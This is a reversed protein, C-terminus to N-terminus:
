KAVSHSIDEDWECLPCLFHQENGSVLSLHVSSSLPACGSAKEKGGNVVATCSRFGACQLCVSLGWGWWRSGLLLKYTGTTSGAQLGEAALLQVGARVVLLGLCLFVRFLWSRFKTSLPSHLQVMLCWEWMRCLSYTETNQFPLSTASWWSNARPWQM